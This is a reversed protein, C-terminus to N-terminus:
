FIVFVHITVERLFNKLLIVVSFMSSDQLTNEFVLSLHSNNDNKMKDRIEGTSVLSPTAHPHANKTLGFDIDFLKHKM